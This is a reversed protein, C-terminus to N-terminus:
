GVKALIVVYNKGYEKACSPCTTYFFYTKEATKNKSQVYAEMEKKWKGMDKYPGEFVKTLFTGSLRVMEAGKVDKSVAIYVDSGFLSNEDSLLLMEPEHADAAEILGMNKVMIRGFNLPIHFLSVVHDKIFLRDKLKIEKDAWPKPNFRPCCGTESDVSLKDM